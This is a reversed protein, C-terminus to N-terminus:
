AGQGGTDRKTKGYSYIKVEFIAFRQQSFGTIKM